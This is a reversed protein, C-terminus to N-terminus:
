EGSGGNSFFNARIHEAFISGTLNSGTDCWNSLNDTLQHIMQAKGEPYGKEKLVFKIKPLNDALIEDDKLCMIEVSISIIDVIPTTFHNCYVCELYIKSLREFIEDLLYVQIYDKGSGDKKPFKKVFEKINIHYHLSVEKNNPRVIVSNLCHAYKHYIASSDPIAGLKLLISNARYSDDALEDAFRLVGALVQLRVHQGYLTANSELHSITDKDDGVKGGHVEAIERIYKRETADGLFGSVENMMSTIKKEHKVRGHINGLDHFHIACLLLYIEYGTLSNDNSYDDLLAAARNIVTQIHDPGHDTLMGGDAAQSGAAVQTHWDSNLKTALQNYREWYSKKAHDFPFENSNLQALNELTKELSKSIIKM